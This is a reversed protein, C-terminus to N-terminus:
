FWFHGPSGMEESLGPIHFGMERAELSATLLTSWLEGQQDCGGETEGWKSDQKEM